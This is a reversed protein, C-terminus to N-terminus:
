VPALHGDRHAVMVCGYGSGFAECCAKRARMLACGKAFLASRIPSVGSNSFAFKWSGERAEVGDQRRWEVGVRSEM